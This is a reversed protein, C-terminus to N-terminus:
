GPSGAGEEDDEVVEKLTELMEYSFRV